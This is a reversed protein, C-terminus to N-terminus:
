VFGASWNYFHPSGGHLVSVRSNKPAHIPLKELWSPHKNLWHPINRNSFYRMSHQVPFAPAKSPMGFVTGMPLILLRAGLLTGPSLSPIAPLFGALAWPYCSRIQWVRHDWKRYIWQLHNGWFSHYTLHTKEQLSGSASFSLFFCCPLLSFPYIFSLPLLFCDKRQEEKGKWMKGNVKRKTREKKEDNKWTLHVNLVSVLTGIPNYKM